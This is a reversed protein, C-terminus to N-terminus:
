PPDTDGARRFCLAAEPHGNSGGWTANSLESKQHVHSASPSLPPGWTLAAFVARGQRIETDVQRDLIAGGWCGSAM